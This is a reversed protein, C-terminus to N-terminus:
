HGEGKKIEETIKEMLDKYYLKEKKINRIEVEEEETLYPRDLLIQLRRDLIAHRAKYQKYIEEKSESNDM